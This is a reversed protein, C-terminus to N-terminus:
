CTGWVHGSAARRWWCGEGQEAASHWLDPAVPSSGMACGGRAARGKWSAVCPPPTPHQQVRTCLCYCYMRAARQQRTGEVFPTGQSSATFICICQCTEESGWRNRGLVWRFGGKGASLHLSLQFFVSCGPHWRTVASSSSHSYGLIRMVAWNLLVHRQFSCSESTWWCSRPQEYCSSRLLPFPIRRFDGNDHLLLWGM